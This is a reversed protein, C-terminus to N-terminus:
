KIIILEDVINQLAEAAVVVIEAGGDVGVGVGGKGLEESLDLREIPLM